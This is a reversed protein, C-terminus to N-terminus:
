PLRYGRDNVSTPGLALDPEPAVVGLSIVEGRHLPHGSLPFQRLVTGPARGPYTEYGVRGLRFGRQEFFRRVTDYDRDILDPMLFVEMPNAVSIFLDVAGGLKVMSGVAPQQSVVTGRPGRPSYISLTRGLSLGAAALVVQAAQPAEGIVSPVQLLQPGRSLLLTVKSGRRVLTSAGPRQLLVHGDPVQEDFRDEGHDLQPNLGQDALLARAETEALGKLEPLPTVGRRVFQSFSVYAVLGFIVALTGLYALCGLGRFWKRWM